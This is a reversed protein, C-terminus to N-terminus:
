KQNKNTEIQEIIKMIDNVLFKSGYSTLHHSDGYFLHEKTNAVCRDKIITNCFFNDPYVRYVNKGQIGDLLQLVEKNKIKFDNYSISFIKINNSSKVRKFFTIDATKKTSNKNKLITTIDGFNIEKLILRQPDFDMEPNPYVLILIHEQKLINDFTRKISETLYRKRENISLIKIDNPELYSDYKLLQDTWFYNFIIIQKPNKELFKDILSIQESYLKNMSSAKIKDFNQLYFFGTLQENIRTFATFKYNLKLLSVLLGNGINEAHSDGILVVSGKENGKFLNTLKIINRPIEFENPVNNLDLIISPFRKKFGQTKIVSFNFSLLIVVIISASIILTKLSIINKNRFPKEILSFSILSIIITLLLSLLKIQISNNFVEIYRLYAFIPYHWLYLSYSILGFFVFIKNSLIKTVLCEKKAFWIILSVGVIPVLTVFSPHFIKNLDLCLLSYFILIIGLSPFIKHLLPFFQLNNKNNKFKLYSLISGFILEFVRSPLLYFNALISIKSLIASFFLSILFILFFIVFFYKKYFKIIILILIPFLIYFQEEVSLSWLHALPKLLESEEGYRGNTIWFYFNSSFFISSILSRSFDSYKAPLLIFYGVVSSIMMIFLLVPLIRRVRREYFHTFSFQNTKLVEKLIISTILYGSIVFFIDVGIFGGQFLPYGFLVFNAHYLIVAFVAIARLGDIEPRYKIKM